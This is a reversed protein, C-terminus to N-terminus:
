RRGHAQMWVRVSEPLFLNDAIAAIEEAERWAAELPALEGELARREAEDNVAMELALRDIPSLWAVTGRVVLTDPNYSTGRKSRRAVLRVYDEPSDYATLREIANTVNGPSAGIGNVYPLTKRLINRAADGTFERTPGVTPDIHLSWSADTGPFLRARRVGSVSFRDEPLTGRPIIYATRLGTVFLMAQRALVGGGGMLAAIAWGGTLGIAAGVVGGAIAAGVAARGHRKAFSTAYRWTAMEPSPPRGIRILVLGSALRALGINPTSARVHSSRFERECQEVAEWREELPTLNWRGCHPCVVWLRGKELDFALRGGVPFREITDNSGLAGNCFLCATYV